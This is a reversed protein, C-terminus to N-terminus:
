VPYEVGRTIDVIGSVVGKCQGSNEHRFFNVESLQRSLCILNCWGSCRWSANSFFRIMRVAYGLVNLGRVTTFEVSVFIWDFVQVCKAVEFVNFLDCVRLRLWHRGRQRPRFCEGASASRQDIVDSLWPFAVSLTAKLRYYLVIGVVLKRCTFLVFIELTPNLLLTHLCVIVVHQLSLVGIQM